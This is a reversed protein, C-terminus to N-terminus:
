KLVDEYTSNGVTKNQCVVKSYLVHPAEALLRRAQDLDEPREVRFENQILLTGPLEEVLQKLVGVDQVLVQNKVLVQSRPKAGQKKWAFTTRQYMRDFSERGEQDNLYLM